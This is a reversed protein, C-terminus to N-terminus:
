LENICLENTNNNYEIYGGFKIMFINLIDLNTHNIKLCLEINNTDRNMNTSFIGISDIIGAIWYNNYNYTDNYHFNNKNINLEKFYSKILVNDCIQNYININRIKNNILNLVKLIGKKDKIIFVFWPARRLAGHTPNQNKINRIIGYGLKSKLYYALKIDKKNFFIILQSLNNFEGKSDILGSLYYGFQINDIPKMHKNIHIDVHKNIIDNYEIENRLTESTGNNYNIYYKTIINIINGASQCGYRYIKSVDELKKVIYNLISYKFSILLLIILSAKGAYPM